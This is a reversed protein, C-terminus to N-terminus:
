NFGMRLVVPGSSRGNIAVALPVTEHDKMEITLERGISRCAAAAEDRNLERFRLIGFCRGPRLLAEDVSHLNPLNTSFVIKRRGTSVMGDALNLLRGMAKNGDARASLITDADELILLRPEETPQMFDKHLKDSMHLAEDYTLWADASMDNVLSKIFSTKGTGPPGILLMVNAESKLFDEALQKAPRDMWPYFANTPFPGRLPFQSKDIGDDDQYYWSIFKKLEPITAAWATFPKVLEDLMTVYFYGKSTTMDVYMANSWADGGTTRKFRELKFHATISDFAAVVDEPQLQISVYNGSLRMRHWEMHFMDNHLTGVMKMRIAM